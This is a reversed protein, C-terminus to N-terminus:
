STQVSSITAVVISDVTAQAHIKDGPDLILKEADFVYTETAALPLTKIVQSATSVANASPTIYIDLETDITDSVNCFFMTTIAQEGVALFLQTTVTSNVYINSISM